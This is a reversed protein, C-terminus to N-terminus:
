EERALKEKIARKIWEAMSVVRGKKRSEEVVRQFVIDYLDGLRLNFSRESAM